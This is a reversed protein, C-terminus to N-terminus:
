RYRLEEYILEDWRKIIECFMGDHFCEIDALWDIAM